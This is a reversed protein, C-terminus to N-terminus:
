RISNARISLAGPLIKIDLPPNGFPEGDIHCYLSENGQIMISRCNFNKVERLVIHSGNKLRLINMFRKLASIKGVTCIEFQGDNLKANPTLKFGGGFTTGNGITLLILDRRIKDGDVELSFSRPQYSALIRLVHYYYKAHGYLLPVETHLMDEVIQGDFGVGVGNLFKRQNAEGLDIRHLDGHIINEIQDGLTKGIDINKVFDNGSGGPIISVPIDFKLGNVAENLTGDGGMVLLDSYSPDLLDSVKKITNGTPLTEHLVLEFGASELHDKVM